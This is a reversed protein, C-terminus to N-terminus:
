KGKVVFIDKEPDISFATGSRSYDRRCEQWLNDPLLMVTTTEGPDGEDLGYDYQMGGFETLLFRPHLAAGGKRQSWLFVTVQYGTPILPNLLKEFNHRVTAIASGDPRKLHLELRKPVDARLRKRLRMLEQFTALFRDVVKFNPDVLVLAHFISGHPDRQDHRENNGM